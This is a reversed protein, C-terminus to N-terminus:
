NRGWGTHRPPKAAEGRWEKRGVAGSGGKVGRVVAKKAARRGESLVNATKVWGYDGWVEVTGSFGAFVQMRFRGLGNKGPAGLWYYYYYTWTFFGEQVMEAMALEGSHAGARWFGMGAVTACNTWGGDETAKWVTGSGTTWDLEHLFQETKGDGWQWETLLGYGNGMVAPGTLEPYGKELVAASFFHKSGFRAIGDDSGDDPVTLFSLEQTFGGNGENWDEIVIKDDMLDAKRVFSYLSRPVLDFRVTGNTGAVNLNLPKEVVEPWNTSGARWAEAAEPPESRVRVGTVTAPDLMVGTEPDRERAALAEVVAWNSAVTGIRSWRGGYYTDGDKLFVAWQGDLTDPGEANMMAVTRAPLGRGGGERLDDKLNLGSGNAANTTGDAGVFVRGRNALLLPESEENHQNWSIATGPYYEVGKEVCGSQPNVWDALGEALGAFAACGNPANEWDLAITFDGGTTEVDAYWNTAGACAGGAALVGAMWVVMRTKM